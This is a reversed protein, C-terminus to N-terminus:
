HLGRVTVARQPPSSSRLRSVRLHAESGGGNLHDSKLYTKSTLPSVQLSRAFSRCTSTKPRAPGSCPPRLGGSAICRQLSVSRAKVNRATSTTIARVSRSISLRSQSMRFLGCRIWARPGCFEGNPGDQSETLGAGPCPPVRLYPTSFFGGYQRCTM